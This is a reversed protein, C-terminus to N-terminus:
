YVEIPLLDKSWLAHDDGIDTAPKQFINGNWQLYDVEARKPVLRGFFDSEEKELQDRDPDDACWDFAPLASLTNTALNLESILAAYCGGDAIRDSFYLNAHTTDFGAISDKDIHTALTRVKGSTMDVARLTGDCIAKYENCFPGALYYLFSGDFVYDSVFEGPQLGISVASTQTLNADVTSLQGVADVLYVTNNYLSLLSAPDIADKAGSFKILDRTTSTVTDHLKLIVLIGNDNLTKEQTSFFEFYMYGDTTYAAAQKQSSVNEATMTSREPDSQPPLETTLSSASEDQVSSPNQPTDTM